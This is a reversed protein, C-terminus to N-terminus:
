VNFRVRTTSWGHRLGRPRKAVKLQRTLRAIKARLAEQEAVFAECYSESVEWKSRWYSREAEALRLEANCVREVLSFAGSQWTKMDPAIEREVDQVNRVFRNRATVLDETAKTNKAAGKKFIENVTRRAKSETKLLVSKSPSEPALVKSPLRPPSPPPPPEATSIQEEEEEEVKDAVEPKKKKAKAMGIGRARPM